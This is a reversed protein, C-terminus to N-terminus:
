DIFAHDGAQVTGPRLVRAWVGLKLERDTLANLPRTSHSLDDQAANVMVCRMTPACVEIM